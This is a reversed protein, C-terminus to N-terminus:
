CAIMDELRFGRALALSNMVAASLLYQGGELAVSNLSNFIGSKAKSSGRMYGVCASNTQSFSRLACNLSIHSLVTHPCILGGGV